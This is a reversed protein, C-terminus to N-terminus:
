AERLSALLNVKPLTMLALRGQDVRLLISADVVENHVGRSGMELREDTLPYRCGTLTVGTCAQWAFVSFESGTEMEISYSVGAASFLVKSEELPVVLELDSAACAFLNGWEHQPDGGQVGIVVCSTGGRRKVEMLAKALDTTDTAMSEVLEGGSALYADVLHRPASDMDGVVVQPTIQHTSCALLAGDCAMVADAWRIYRDMEKAPLWPSNLLVLWRKSGMLVVAM